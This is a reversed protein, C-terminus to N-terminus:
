HQVGCDEVFPDIKISEMFEIAKRTGQEIENDSLQREGIPYFENELGWRYIFASNPADSRQKQLSHGKGIPKKSNTMCTGGIRHFQTEKLRTSGEEGAYM